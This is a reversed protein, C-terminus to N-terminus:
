RVENLNEDPVYFYIKTYKGVESEISLKYEDGFYLNLRKNINTVGVKKGNSKLISLVELIKEQTMGEGNDLIEFYIQTDKQKISIKIEGITDINEFGHEISNEVFPQLFLKPVKKSLCEEDIDYAVEVYYSRIAYM